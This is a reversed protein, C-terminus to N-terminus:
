KWGKRIPGIIEELYEAVANKLDSAHLKGSEFANEIQSYNSFKLNGGYKKERKIEITEFKPFIM